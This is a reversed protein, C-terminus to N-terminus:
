HLEVFLALPVLFRTGVLSNIKIVVGMNSNM